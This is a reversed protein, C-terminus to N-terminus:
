AAARPTVKNRKVAYSFSRVEHNITSVYQFDRFPSAVAVLVGAVSATKMGGTIDIIVECEDIDAPLNAYVSELADTIAEIDEFDLDEGQADGVKEFILEPYKEQMLQEFGDYQVASKSSCVVWVHKLCGHADHANLGKTIMVWSFRPEQWVSADGREVKAYMEDPIPSLFLTVGEHPDVQKGSVKARDKGKQRSAMRWNWLMVIFLVLFPAIGAWIAMPPPMATTQFLAQLIVLLTDGFWGLSIVFALLLVIRGVSPNNIGVMEALLQKNRSASAIPSGQHKIM